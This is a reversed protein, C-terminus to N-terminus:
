KMTFRVTRYVQLQQLRVAQSTSQGLLYVSPRTWQAGTYLTGELENDWLEAISGGISESFRNQRGASLPLQGAPVNVTTTAIATPRYQGVGWRIWGGEGRFTNAGSQRWTSPVCFTFGEATIQRWTQPSSAVPVQCAVVPADEHSSAGSSACATLGILLVVPPLRMFM